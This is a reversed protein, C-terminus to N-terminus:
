NEVAEELKFFAIALRLDEAHGSLADSTSAMEESATANEQIVQDLTHIAKNVQGTGTSQEGSAAAIERVLDATKLISPLLTALMKGAKEATTVSDGTLRTIEAAATQSREALKRVESAVVAFGKGHEGARAAEVAANLALLDTKRAIEEIIRIKEAINKIAVVTHAVADRTSKADVAASSAIVETQRANDANHQVSAAMQEMSATTEEAAAAQETSGQSIQQATANLKASGTSVNSAATSVGILTNRLNEQMRHLTAIMLGIEDKSTSELKHTLDGQALHSLLEVTRGIPASLVRSLAFALFMGMGIAAALTLSMSIRSRSYQRAAQEGAETAHKQQVEVATRVADNLRKIVNKGADELTATAQEGQGLKAYQFVQRASQEYPDLLGGIHKALQKGEDSTETSEFTALDARLKASLKEFDKEQVEIAAPKNTALIANRSCRAILAKDVEIDKVAMIGKVNMSFLLAIRNNLEAAIIFGQYGIASTIVLLLGFGIMLKSKVKLDQFWNM